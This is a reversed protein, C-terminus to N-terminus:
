NHKRNLWIERERIRFNVPSSIKLVELIQEITENNLAGTFRLKKLSNDEFHFVVDYKRGLRVTLSELEESNFALRDNIWSTFLDTNVGKAILLKERENNKLDPKSYFVQEGPKLVIKESLNCKTNVSVSGEVLTTEVYTEEPYAKVNFTTGLTHVIIGGAFVNFSKRPNKAVQFYAEGELYLDRNFKNYNQSFRITSGANLWLKTGDDLIMQTKSGRLVSIETFILKQNYESFEYVLLTTIGTILLVLAAYRLLDAIRKGGREKPRLGSKFSRSQSEIVKWLFKEKTNNADWEPRGVGASTLFWVKKLKEFEVKNHDSVSLWQDVRSIETLDAEGNLYKALLVLDISSSQDTM